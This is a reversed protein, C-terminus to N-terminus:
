RRSRPRMPVTAHPAPRIPRTQPRYRYQVRAGVRVRPGYYWSPTYFGPYWGGMWGGRWGYSYYAPYPQYYYASTGVAYTIDDYDYHGSTMRDVLDLLQDEPATGASDSGTLARFDWRGHTVFASLDFPSDARAALVMGSGSSAVVTFADRDGRSRVEYKHGGLVKADDDPDVPFLVRVRGDPEMQLVVLYGDQATRVYVRAHDGSAYSDNSLTVRIPPTPGATPAALTIVGSLALATINM